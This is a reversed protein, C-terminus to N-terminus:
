HEVLHHASRPTRGSTDCARQSPWWMRWAAPYPRICCPGIRLASRERVLNVFEQLLLYAIAVSPCAARLRGPLPLLAFPFVPQNEWRRYARRDDRAVQRALKLLQKPPRSQGGVAEVM